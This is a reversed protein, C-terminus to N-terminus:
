VPVEASSCFSTLLHNFVLCAILGRLFCKRRQPVFDALVTSEPSRTLRALRASRNQNLKAGPVLSSCFYGSTLKEPRIGLMLRFRWNSLRNINSKRIGDAGFQCRNSSIRRPQASPATRNKGSVSGPKDSHSLHTHRSKEYWRSSPNGNGSSREPICLIRRKWHGKRSRGTEHDEAEPM